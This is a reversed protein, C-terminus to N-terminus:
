ATYVQHANEWGEDHAARIAARTQRKNSLAWLASPKGKRDTTAILLGGVLGLKTLLPGLNDTRSGKAAAGIVPNNLVAMPAGVAALVAAAPRDVTGTAFAVGAVVTVAGTAQTIRKWTADSPKQVGAKELLPETSKAAELHESPRTIASVGDLIFPAALLPRAILRLVNM